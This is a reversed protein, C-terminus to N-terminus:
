ICDKCVLCTSTKSFYDDGSIKCSDWSIQKSCKFCNIMLIGDYKQLNNSARLFSRKDVNITLDLKSLQTGIKIIDDNSLYSLTNKIVLLKKLCGSLSSELSERTYQKELCLKSFIYDKTHSKLYSLGENKFLTFLELDEPLNTMYKNFLNGLKSIESSETHVIRKIGNYYTNSGNTTKIVNFNSLLSRKFKNIGTSSKNISMYLDQLEKVNIRGDPDVCLGYNTLDIINKNM